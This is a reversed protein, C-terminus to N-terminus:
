ARDEKTVWRSERPLIKDPRRDLWGHQSYIEFRIKPQSTFVFGLADHIMQVVIKM